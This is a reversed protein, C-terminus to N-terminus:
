GLALLLTICYYAVALVILVLAIKAFPEPLGIKGIAWFLIYAILGAIIIRVLIPLIGALSFTLILTLM